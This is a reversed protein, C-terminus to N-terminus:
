MEATVRLAACGGRNTTHRKVYVHGADFSLTDSASMSSAASPMPSAGPRAREQRGDRVDRPPNGEGVAERADVQQRQRGRLRQGKGRALRARANLAQM